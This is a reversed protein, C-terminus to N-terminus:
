QGVSPGTYTVYQEKLVKFFNVPLHAFNLRRKERKLVNLVASREGSKVAREFFVLAAAAAEPSGPTTQNICGLWFKCTKDNVRATGVLLEWNM